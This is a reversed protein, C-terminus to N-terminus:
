DEVMFGAGWGGSGLHTSIVPTAPSSLIEVDGFRARILDSVQDVIEPRAVHIIGFRVRKADPPLQEALARVLAPAVRKRGITKGVPVIKGEGDLCLIPKVGLVTGLWAQGRGIRGSALLRDFSDVTFFIGSQQRIRALEAAIEAPPTALEALEVAKLVLLGQLLSIGLTDVLTIPTELHSAAAEASAFTGSLTSGLIVGVVEEASEAARRFAELFAGPPPQSTTPLDGGETLRRHFEEATIDVGDRYTEEGEVLVCPVVQIGHARVVDEPLDAASDTVIGVPRRVMTLHGGGGKTAVHNQARMDEAKHTALTGLTKLYEFVADPEDTHIHVKLLSGTSLVILSDGLERLRKRATMQDPLDDGRVLAETCYRYKESKAPLDFESAASPTTSFDPVDDLAVLPDGRVYLSIGELLHVFGKAGADVVGAKKLPELLETTRALSAQAEGLIDELYPVFDSVSARSAAEATERMVTLITGEVPNEIAEYLRQVGASLAETFDRTSIRTRERVDEAFGVLFHSLMMGVNGRAGLVAADAVEKVVLSFERRHDRRLHDSIAQVTLALNTGTDRDPVPFVNIRNL